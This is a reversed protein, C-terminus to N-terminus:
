EGTDDNSGEDQNNQSSGQQPIIINPEKVEMISSLPYKKDDIIIEANGNYLTVGKVIGKITELTGDEKPQAITAEKGILSVSYTTTSLQSLDTLAQVMSFQAMQAMFQTDDMTNYMDQNKLQASLLAFFDDMSLNNKGATNATNNTTNTISQNSTIGNVPM